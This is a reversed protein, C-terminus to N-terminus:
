SEYVAKQRHRGSKHSYKRSALSAVGNVGVALLLGPIVAAAVRNIVRNAATVTFRIAIVAFRESM